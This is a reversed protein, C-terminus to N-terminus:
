YLISSRKICAPFTYICVWANGAEIANSIRIARTINETFIHCALGYETDNAQEIAEEETKFKVLTCVPGFIEDRVLKMDSHVDTIITPKIFYGESGHREGGLLINAGQSKGSEIYSM